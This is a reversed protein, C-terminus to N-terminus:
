VSEKIILMGAVSYWNHMTCSRIIFLWGTIPLLLVMLIGIGFGILCVGLTKKLLGLM